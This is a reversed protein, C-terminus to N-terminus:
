EMEGTEPNRSTKIRYRQRFEEISDSAQYFMEGLRDIVEQRKGLDGGATEFLYMGNFKALTVKEVFRPWDFRGAFPWLHQDGTGDNDNLQIAHVSDFDVPTNRLYAHGTDLCLAVNQLNAIKIFERIREPTSAENLSTELLVKAGSFRQVTAIVAYAHELLVPNFSDGVGGLHMVAYEIPTFEALEM